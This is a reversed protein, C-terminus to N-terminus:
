KGRVSSTAVGGPGEKEQETKGLTGDMFLKLLQLSPIIFMIFLLYWEEPCPIMVLCWLQETYM